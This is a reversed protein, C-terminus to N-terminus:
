TMISKFFFVLEFLPMLKASQTLETSYETGLLNSLTIILNALQWFIEFAVM